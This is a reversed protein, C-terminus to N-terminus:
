SFIKRKCFSFPDPPFWVAEHFKANWGSVTIPPRLEAVGDGQQSFDRLLEVRITVGSPESNFFSFSLLLRRREKKNRKEKKRKATFETSVSL